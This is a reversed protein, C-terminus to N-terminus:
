IYINYESKKYLYEQRLKRICILKIQRVREKTINLKKGIEELTKPKGNFGFYEKIIFKERDNLVNLLLSVDFEENGINDSDFEFDSITESKNVIEDEEDFLFNDFSIEENDYANTVENTNLIGRKKVLDQISQRIWWVGYSFFKVDYDPNFKEYAKFLANNGESVLDAFPVGCGKYKKAIDVVFKLNSSIIKNRAKLDGTKAKKFLKKEEDKTLPVLPKLEKYYLTNINNFDNIFSNM